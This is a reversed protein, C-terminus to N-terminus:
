SLIDDEIQIKKLKNTVSNITQDINLYQYTATRGVFITNKESEMLKEYKKFQELHKGFIMPYYPNNIGDQHQEPYERTVVTLDVDQNYWYSHDIARCWKNERNCENLQIYLTKPCYIHEFKLSRYELEGYIKNFYKDVKGTYVLLDCKDKLTKWEDEKTKLHIPIGDLINKFMEVFGNSPLGQYKKQAFNNSSTNRRIPLRNLISSPLVEFPVGWMKESYDKFILNKIEEDSLRRGIIRESNTNYPVPIVGEKTNGWVEVSFNNFKSFQNLWKWVKENDTHIAHPGHAHIMCKTVNDIYDFCNGSIYERTDFIEVHWNNNKLIRAATSGAIGAGIVYAKKM